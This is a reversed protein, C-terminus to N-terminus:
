STNNPHISLHVWLRLKRRIYSCQPTLFNGLVIHSQMSAHISTKGGLNPPKHLLSAVLILEGGTPKKNSAVPHDSQDPFLENMITDSSNSWPTIKKQVDDSIGPDNKDRADKSQRGEERKAAAEHLCQNDCQLPIFLSDNWFESHEFDNKSILEDDTLLSSQPIIYYVAQPHLSSAM